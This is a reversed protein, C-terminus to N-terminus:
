SATLNTSSQFHSASLKSVKRRVSCYGSYQVTAGLLSDIMSGLLGAAAGLPLVLLQRWSLDSACEASLLGVIVYALGIVFGAAM